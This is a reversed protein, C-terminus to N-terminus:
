DTELSGTTGTTGEGWPKASIAGGQVVDKGVLLLLDHKKGSVFNVDSTSTWIYDNGNVKFSICFTGAMIWQPIVIASYKFTAHDTTKDAKTFAVTEPTIAKPALGDFRVSIPDAAFNVKSRIFTGDM